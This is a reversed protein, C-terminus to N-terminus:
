FAQKPGNQGVFPQANDQGNAECVLHFYYCATQGIVNRRVFRLLFPAVLMEYFKLSM